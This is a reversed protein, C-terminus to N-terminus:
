SCTQTTEREVISTLESQRVRSRLGAANATQRWKTPQSVGACCCREVEAPRILERSYRLVNRPSGAIEANSQCKVGVWLEDSGKAVSV